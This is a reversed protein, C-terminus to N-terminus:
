NALVTGTPLSAAPSFILSVKRSRSNPHTASTRLPLHGPCGIANRTGYRASDAVPARDLYANEQRLLLSRAAIFYEMRDPTVIAGLRQKADDFNDWRYLHVIREGDGAAMAFFGVNRELLPRFSAPKNWKRQLAWYSLSLAQDSRTPEDKM